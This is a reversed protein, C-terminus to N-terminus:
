KFAVMMDETKTGGSALVLRHQVHHGALGEDRCLVVAKADVALRQGRPPARKEDVGVVVGILDAEGRQATKTLFYSAKTHRTEAPSSFALPLRNLTGRPVLGFIVSVRGAQNRLRTM